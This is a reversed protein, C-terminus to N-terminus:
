GRSVQFSDASGARGRRRRAPFGASTEASGPHFRPPPRNRHAPTSPDSGSQCRPPKPCRRSVGDPNARQAPSCVKRRKETLRAAERAASRKAGAFATQTRRLRAKQQTKTSAQFDNKVLSLAACIACAIASADKRRNRLKRSQCVLEGASDTGRMQSSYGEGDLARNTRRQKRSGNQQKLLM